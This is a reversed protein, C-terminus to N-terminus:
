FNGQILKYLSKTHISSDNVLEGFTYVVGNKVGLIRANSKPSFYFRDKWEDPISSDKIPVFYIKYGDMGGLYRIELQKLEKLSYKNHLRYAKIIYEDSNKINDFYNVSFLVNFKLAVFLLLLLIVSIIVKRM